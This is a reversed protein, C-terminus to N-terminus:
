RMVGVTAFFGFLGLTESDSDAVAYYQQAEIGTRVFLNGRNAQVGLQIESISFCTATTVSGPDNGYLLSQQLAAFISLDNRLHRNLQLGVTPGVGFSAVGLGPTFPGGPTPQGQTIVESYRLGGSIVGCWNCTQFTDTIELDINNIDITDTGITQYYDFIRIRAGLGDCRQVGGWFRVGPQYDNNGFQGESEFVKLAVIEAGAYIMSQDCCDNCGCSEKGGGGGTSTLSNELRNIQAEAAELRGILEATSAFQAQTEEAQAPSVAFGLGVALLAVLAGWINIRM